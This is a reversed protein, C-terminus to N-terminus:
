EHQPHCDVLVEILAEDATIIPIAAAGHPGTIRQAYITGDDNERVHFWDLHQPPRFIDGAELDRYRAWAPHSHHRM